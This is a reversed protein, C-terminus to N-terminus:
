GVWLAVRGREKREKKKEKAKEDVQREDGVTWSFWRFVLM